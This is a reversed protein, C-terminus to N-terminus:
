SINTTLYIQFLIQLLYKKYNNFIHWILELCFFAPLGFTQLDKAFFVDFNLSTKWRGTPTQITNLVKWIWNGSQVSCVSVHSAAYEDHNFWLYWKWWNFAFSLHCLRTDSINQWSCCQGIWDPPWYSHFVCTHRLLHNLRKINDAM